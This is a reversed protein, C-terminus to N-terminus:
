PSAATRADLLARIADPDHAGGSRDRARVHPSGRGSSSTGEFVSPPGTGVHDYVLSGNWATSTVFAFDTALARELRPADVGHCRPCARQAEGATGEADHCALCTGRSTGDGLLGHASARSSASEDVHCTVCDTSTVDFGEVSEHAVVIASAEEHTAVADSATGADGALAADLVWREFAISVVTDDRVTWGEDIPDLDVNADLGASIEVRESSHGAASVRVDARETRVYLHFRGEGDTEALAGDAGVIRAGAIARGTARDRVVGSVEAHPGGVDRAPACGVSLALTGMLAHFGHRRVRVPRVM